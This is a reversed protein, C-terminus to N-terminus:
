ADHESGLESKILSIYLLLMKLDPTLQTCATFLVGCPQCALGNLNHHRTQARHTSRLAQSLAQSLAMCAASKLFSSAMCM